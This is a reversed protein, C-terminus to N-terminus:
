SFTDFVNYLTLSHDLINSNLQSVQYLASITIAADLPALVLARPRIKSFVGFVLSSFVCCLSVFVFLYTFATSM